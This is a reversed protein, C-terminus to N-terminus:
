HRKEINIAEKFYTILDSPVEFQYLMVYKLSTRLKDYAKKSQRTVTSKNVGLIEAAKTVSYNEYWLLRIIERQMEDLEDEIAKRLLRSVNNRRALSIFSCIKDKEGTGIVDLNESLFLYEEENLEVPSSLYEVNM